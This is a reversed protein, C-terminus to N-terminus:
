TPGSIPGGRGSQHSGRRAWAVSRCGTPWKQVWNVMVFHIFDWPCEV